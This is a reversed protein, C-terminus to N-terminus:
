SCYKLSFRLFEERRPLEAAEHKANSMNFFFM